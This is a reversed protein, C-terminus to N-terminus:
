SGLAKMRLTKRINVHDDVILIKDQLIHSENENSM